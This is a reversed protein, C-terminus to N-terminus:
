AGANGFRMKGFGSLLSAGASLAGGALASRGVRRRYAATMEDEEAQALISGTKITRARDSIREEEAKLAFTTPSTMDIGAAARTADIGSLTTRLEDRLQTDTQNAKIRGIEASREDRAALFEQSAQEGEGRSYKSYADLGLGAISAAAGVGQQVEPGM